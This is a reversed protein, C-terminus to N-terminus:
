GSLSWRESVANLGDDTLRGFLRLRAMGGDPFADLRAETVPRSMRTSRWVM